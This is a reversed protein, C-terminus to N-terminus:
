IKATLLHGELFNMVRWKNREREVIQFKASFVGYCFWLSLNFEIIMFCKACCGGLSICLLLSFILSFPFSKFLSSFFAAIKIFRGRDSLREREIM